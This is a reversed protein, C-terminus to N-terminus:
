TSGPGPSPTTGSASRASAPGPSPPISSPSEQPAPTRASRPPAAPPCTSSPAPTSPPQGAPAAPTPAPHRVRGTPLTAQCRDELGLGLRAFQGPLLKHLCKGLPLRLERRHVRARWLRRHDLDLVRVTLLAGLPRMHKACRALPNAGSPVPDRGT